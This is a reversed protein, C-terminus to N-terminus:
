VRFLRFLSSVWLTALTGLTAALSRGPRPSGWRARALAGGRAPGGSALPRELDLHYNCMYQVTYILRVVHVSAVFNALRAAM